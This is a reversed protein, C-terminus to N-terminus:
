RSGKQRTTDIPFITANFAKFLATVRSGRSLSLKKLSASTIHARLLQKEGLDMTVIANGPTQEIDVVMGRLTNRASSITEENMLIIDDSEVLLEVMKNEKLAHHGIFQRTTSVTVRQACDLKVEVEANEDKCLIGTVRGCLRSFVTDVGRLERARKDFSVELTKLFNEHLVQLERYANVVERAYATVATGGGGKGGSVRKVMPQASLNNMADVSDWAARYSMKMAKAAKSISGYLMINELLEVRGKGIFNKGGRQIWIQGDIHFKENKKGM